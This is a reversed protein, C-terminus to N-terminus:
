SRFVSTEDVLRRQPMSYLDSKLTSGAGGGGGGGGGEGGARTREWGRSPSLFVPNAEPVSTEDVLRRQPM